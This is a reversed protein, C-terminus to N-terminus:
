EDAIKVRREIRHPKGHAAGNEGGREDQHRGEGQGMGPEGAVAVIQRASQHVRDAAEIVDEGHHRDTQQRGL